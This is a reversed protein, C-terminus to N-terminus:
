WAHTADFHAIAEALATPNPKPSVVDVQLGLNDRLFEGTTPGISAIRALPRESAQTSGGSSLAFHERLIPTTFEAESPAFYVIWWNMPRSHAPESTSHLVKGLVREARGKEGEGGEVGRIAEALDADFTDSGHTEYVQLPEVRVGGEALIRPLTDRNKDGTLYLLRRCVDEPPADSLDDVILRALKESTGTSAAGHINAQSPAYEPYKGVIDRISLLVKETAEGVVYFPVTSWHTGEGEAEEPDESILELVVAKWAESSRASTVIVGGYGGKEPGAVVIEKLRDINTYGTEVVPVSVSTLGQNRFGAEYRDPGDRTPARLLLVHAM